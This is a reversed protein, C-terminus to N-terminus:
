PGFDASPEWRGTQWVGKSTLRPEGRTGDRGGRGGARSPSSGREVRETLARMASELAAEAEGGLLLVRDRLSDLEDDLHRHYDM